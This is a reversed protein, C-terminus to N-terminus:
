IETHVCPCQTRVMGKNTSTASSRCINLLDPNCNHHIYNHMEHKENLVQFSIFGNSESLPTESNQM